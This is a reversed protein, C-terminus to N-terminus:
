DSIEGCIKLLIVVSKRLGRLGLGGCFDACIGGWDKGFDTNFVGGEVGSWFVEAARSSQTLSGRLGRWFLMQAEAHAREVLDKLRLGEDRM